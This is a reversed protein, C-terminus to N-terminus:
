GFDGAQKLALELESAVEWLSESSVDVDRAGDLVAVDCITGVEDFEVEVDLHPFHWELQLGGRATPVVSPRPASLPLRRSIFEFAGIVAERTIPRSGPGAWDRELTLIQVVSREFDADMWDFAANEGRLSIPGVDQPDSMLYDPETEFMGTEAQGDAFAVPTM